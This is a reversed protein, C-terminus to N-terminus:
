WPVASATKLAFWLGEAGGEVFAGSLPSYRHAAAEDAYMARAEPSDTEPLRTVSAGAPGFDTWRFESFALAGTRSARLLGYEAVSPDEISPRLFWQPHGAEAADLAAAFGAWDTPQWLRATVLKEFAARRRATKDDHAAASTAASAAAAAAASTAASTAAAAAAAAAVKQADADQRAKRAAARGAAVREAAARGAAAREKAAAREAEARAEEAVRQAAAREAEARAEEAARRAAAREAEARAEEAARQAAAREAEARAEEAARQAAAREAEARAEEAAQESAARAREEARRRRREEREAAAAEREAAALRAREAIERARTAEYEEKPADDKAKQRPQRAAHSAKARLNELHERSEREAKQLPTEEVPDDLHELEEQLAAVVLPRRKPPVSSCSPPRGRGPASLTKFIEQAEASKPHKDPHYVLSIKRSLSRFEQESPDGRWQGDFPARFDGSFACIREAASVPQGGVSARAGFHAVSM